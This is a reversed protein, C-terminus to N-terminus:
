PGADRGPKQYRRSCRPTQPTRWEAKQRKKTIYNIAGSFSNRGYLASQPGRVVEVREMGDIFADFAIRGSWYFGDVFTAVNAEDGIQAGQTLGRMSVNGLGPGGQNTFYIGPVQDMLARVDTIGREVLNDGGLATISLPTTQLNEERLRATVVIVDTTFPQDAEVQAQQAQPGSATEQQAAPLPEAEEAHSALPVATIAIAAACTSRLLYTKLSM